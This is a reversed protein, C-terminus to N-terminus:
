SLWTQQTTSCGMTQTHTLFWPFKRSLLFVFGLLHVSSPMAQIGATCFFWHLLLSWMHHKEPQLHALLQTGMSQNFFLFAILKPQQSGLEPQQLDTRRELGWRVYQCLERWFNFSSGLSALRHVRISNRSCQHYFINKASLYSDVDHKNTMELILFSTDSQM